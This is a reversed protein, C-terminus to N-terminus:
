IRLVSSRIAYSPLFNNGRIETAVGTGAKPFQKTVSALSSELRPREIRTSATLAPSNESGHKACCPHQDGCPMQVPTLSVFLPVVFKPRAGHCCSHDHTGSSNSSSSSPQAPTQVTRSFADSAAALAGPVSWCALSALVVAAILRKKMGVRWQTQCFPFQQATISIVVGPSRM